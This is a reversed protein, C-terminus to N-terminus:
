ITPISNITHDSQFQVTAKSLEIIDLFISNKLNHKQNKIM